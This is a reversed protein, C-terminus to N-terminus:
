RVQKVRCGWSLLSRVAVLAATRVCGAKLPDISGANWRPSMRNRFLPSSGSRAPSTTTNLILSLSIGMTCRTIFTCSFYSTHACEYILARLSQLTITNRLRHAHNSTLRAEFSGARLITDSPHVVISSQAGPNGQQKWIPTM